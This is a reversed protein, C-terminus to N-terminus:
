KKVNKSYVISDGMQTKLYVLNLPRAKAVASDYVHLLCLKIGVLM